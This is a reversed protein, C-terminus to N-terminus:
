FVHAVYQITGMGDGPSSHSGARSASRTERPRSGTESGASCAGHVGAWPLGGSEDVLDQPSGGPSQATTRARGRQNVRRPRGPTSHALM